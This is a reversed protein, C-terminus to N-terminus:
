FEESALEIIEKTIDMDRFGCNRKMASQSQKHLTQRWPTADRVVGTLDKIM